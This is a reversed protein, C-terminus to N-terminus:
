GGKGGDHSLMTGVGCGVLMVAICLLVASMLMRM